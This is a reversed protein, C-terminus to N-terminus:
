EVALFVRGQQGGGEQNRRREGWSSCMYFLCSIVSESIVFSRSQCKQGGFVQSWSRWLGTVVHFYSTIDFTLTLVQHCTSIWRPKKTDVSGQGLLLFGKLRVKFLELGAGLDSSAGPNLYLWWRHCSSPKIDLSFPLFLCYCGHIHQKITRMKPRRPHSEPKNGFLFPSCLASQPFSQKKSRLRKFFVRKVKMVHGFQLMRVGVKLRFYLQAKSHKYWAVKRRKITVITFPRTTAVLLLPPGVAGKRYLRSKNVIQYKTNRMWTM